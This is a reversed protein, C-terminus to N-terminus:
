ATKKIYRLPIDISYGTTAGTIKVITDIHAFTGTVGSWSGGTSGIKEFLYTSSQLELSPLFRFRFAVGRPGQIPSDNADTGLTAFFSAGQGANSINYSAINDDDLYSYSVQTGQPTSLSGLRNDMEVIFQTEILTTDLSQKQSIATTNLGQDVQIYKGGSTTSVGLLVGKTQASDAAAFATDTDTDVSVVFSDSAQADTQNLAMGGGTSNGEKQNLMIVPLYLLNTRPISILKSKMTSTNNTFAELIPTRLIQIDYYASGSADTKDYKAYDIEDDGFAYKVIKFSGDGAALRARGADTLVADLIIDGSNDLFAM